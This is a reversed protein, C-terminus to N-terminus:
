NCGIFSTRVNDVIGLPYALNLGYTSRIELYKNELFDPLIIIM